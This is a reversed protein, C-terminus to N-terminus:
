VEGSSDTQRLVSSWKSAMLIPRVAVGARVGLGVEGVHDEAVVVVPRDALAVEHVVVDHADPGVDAHVADEQLLALADLLDIGLGAALLQVLQLVLPVEVRGLDLALDGGGVRVALDQLLDLLVGVLVLLAVAAEGLRQDEGGVVQRVGGM